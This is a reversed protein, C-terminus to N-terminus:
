RPYLWYKVHEKDPMFKLTPTRESPLLHTTSSILRGLDDLVARNSSYTAHDLGFMDDGVSTVDITEIGEVLHPGDSDVYGMRTGWAKKDSALLAKDASSVYMTMNRAVSKIESAKKMFVDRDVDPAALVLEAVNLNVKSLFAQQLANVLIQNGLSHAVIYVRKDGVEETLVRLVQLLDGGSFEASERDYDYKFLEGASPWSFVLVSGGFNADYAIQAAKFVADQFTVNYGHIFLLVSNANSRLRDVFEARALLIRSKIRFHDDDKEPEYKWTLYRFRPREVQGLVHSKPVSVITVGYKLKMSRLSTISSWELSSEHTFARNTAFYVQQLAMIQGDAPVSAADHAPVSAADDATESRRAAEVRKKEAKAANIRAVEAVRAKEAAILAAEVAKAREVAKAEEPAKAKEAAIRADEAAKLQAAAKAREADTARADDLAKKEAALRAEEAAAAKVAILKDRQPKALDTYFGSPYKNIFANWASVVNIQQALEYDDRAGANPDVPAIPQLPAPVLAVDDGGLSGYIFPEQRNRTFRLVDDRVFGFAKRLDLGPTFLNELLATTYPSHTGAGDVAVTGAKASFAILTNPAVPEVRAMGIAAQTGLPRTMTKSFPDDRCADLIILKLRKAPELFQLLRDVSVTEIEVDIESRLSADVPVLYNTGNVAIGHGAYYVLAIDSDATRASFEHLVRRMEVVNLDLASTVVFGANTLQLGIAAADSAPTILQPAHQYNSNGIVLAVRKEAYARLPAFCVFIAPLIQAHGL